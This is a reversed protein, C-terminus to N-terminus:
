TLPGCLLQDQWLGHLIVDGTSYDIIAIGTELQVPKGNIWAIYTGTGRQSDVTWTFNAIGQYPLSRAPDSENYLTGTFQLHLTSRVVNGSGDLFDTFTAEYTATFLVDFEPCSIYLGSDTGQVRRTSSPSAALGSGATSVLWAGAIISVVLLRRM